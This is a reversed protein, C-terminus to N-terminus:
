PWSSGMYNDRQPNMLLMLSKDQRMSVRSADLEHGATPIKAPTFESM